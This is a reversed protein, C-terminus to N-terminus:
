GKLISEAWKFAECFDIGIEPKLSMLEKVLPLLKIADVRTNAQFWSRQVLHLVQEHAQVMNFIEAIKKLLKSKTEINEISLVISKLM